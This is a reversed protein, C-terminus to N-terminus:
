EHMHIYLPLASSFRLQPMSYWLFGCKVSNTCLPSTQASTKWETRDYAEETTASSFTSLASLNRTRWMPLLMRYVTPPRAFPMRRDAVCPWQTPVCVVRLTLVAATHTDLRSSPYPEEPLEASFGDSLHAM